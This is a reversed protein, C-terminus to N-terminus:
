EKDEQPWVIEGHSIAELWDRVFADGEVGEQRVQRVRKRTIDMEKTLQEIKVRYQRMLSRIEEGSLRSVELPLEKTFRGGGPDREGMIFRHSAGRAYETDLFGSKRLLFLPHQRRRRNLVGIKPM